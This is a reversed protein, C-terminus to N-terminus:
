GDFPMGEFFPALKASPYPRPWVLPYDKSYLPSGDPLNVAIHPQEIAGPRDYYRIDDGCYRFSIARRPKDQSLNGSSGHVTMVNHIIVDGPNAEITVVDFDDMNGEIDPLKGDEADFIPTQSIFVNPAFSKDWLHSGRIYQMTGNHQTAPDLPIWVICCKKGTIQFYTYDQHFATRQSTHPTKVFTTDDWFNLYDSDMLKACTAPLVSDLATERIGTHARWGGADYFFMGEQSTEAEQDRMPRAHQDSQIMAKYYEVEFRDAEQTEINEADAWIQNAISEFDYGTRTKGVNQMQQGVSARLAEIETKTIVNKLRLFGDKEYAAIDDATIALDVEHALKIM